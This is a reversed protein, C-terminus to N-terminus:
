GSGMSMLKKRRKPDVQLEEALNLVLSSGALGMLATTAEFAADRVELVYLNVSPLPSVSAGQKQDKPTSGKSLANSIPDVVDDFTFCRQLWQDLTVHVAEVVGRNKDKLKDLMLPCLMKCSGAFEEKLGSGLLGKVAASVVLVMSDGTLVRLSKVVESFDGPVLRFSGAGSPQCLAPIKELFELKEQWKAVKLVQTAWSKGLKTLLDVEVEVEEEEEEGDEMAEELEQRQKTHGKLDGRKGAPKSSSALKGKTSRTARRPRPRGAPVNALAADLEKAQVGRLRGFSTRIGPGLHQVLAVALPLALSRVQPVNSDFIEVCAPLLCNRANIVEAGFLELAKLATEVCAAATKAHKWTMCTVLVPIVSSSCDAEIMKLVLQQTKASTKPSAFGKKVVQEASASSFQQCAQLDLDAPAPPSRAAELSREQVNVNIDALGGQILSSTEEWESGAIAKGQQRSTYLNYALELQPQARSSPPASSEEKARQAEYGGSAQPKQPKLASAAPSSVVVQQPVAAMSEEDDTYGSKRSSLKPYREEQAMQSSPPLQQEYRAEDPPQQRLELPQQALTPTSQAASPFGRPFNAPHQFMMSQQPTQKMGSYDYPPAPPNGPLPPPYSPTLPISNMMPPYAASMGRYPDM